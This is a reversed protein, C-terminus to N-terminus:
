GGGALPSSSVWRSDAGVAVVISGGRIEDIIASAVKPALAPCGFSRGLRGHERAFAETAYDAAHFVIDRKRAGDNVGKDLGDLRLSYGHAGRYTEATRFVGLSSRHSQPEKGFETPVRDGSGKGHAVREAFLVSGSEPDIVWLRPETSALSYDIVTLRSRGILNAERAHRYVRLALALVNAALGPVRLSPNSAELRKAPRAHAAPRAPSSIAVVLVAVRIWGMRMPHHYCSRTPRLSQAMAAPFAERGASELPVPRPAHSAAQGKFSFPCILVNRRRRASVWRM